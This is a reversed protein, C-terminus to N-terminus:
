KPHAQHYLRHLQRQMQDAPLSLLHAREASSIEQEFFQQIRADGIEPSPLKLDRGGAPTFFVERAWSQIQKRQAAEDGAAELQQCGAPSLRGALEQRAQANWFARPRPKPKKDPSKGASATSRGAQMLRRLAKGVEQRRRNEPLKANAAAFQERQAPRMRELLKEEVWQAFVAQDDPSLRREEEARLQKIRALRRDAPLAMLEAREFGALQDLWQQYARLVTHFQEAKSDREIDAELQWLRRQEAAPLREFREFKRLLEEKEDAPLADIRAQREDPTSAQAVADTQSFLGARELKRLFDTDPTQRYAELHEVMPLDRLLQGNRDPWLRAALFGVVGVAALAGLALPLRGLRRAPRNGLDREVSLAVMEVTSRTFNTGVDARPLQDLLDWTSQLRQLEQRVHEDTSLLHEVRREDDASLEGDLYAVLTERLDSEM